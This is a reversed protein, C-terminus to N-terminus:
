DLILGLDVIVLLKNQSFCTLCFLIYFNGSSVFIEFMKWIFNYIELFATKEKVKESLFKFFNTIYIFGHM